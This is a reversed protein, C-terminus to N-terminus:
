KGRSVERCVKGNIIVTRGDPLAEFRPKAYDCVLQREAIIRDATIDICHGKGDCTRAHANVALLFAAVHVALVVLVLKLVTRTVM